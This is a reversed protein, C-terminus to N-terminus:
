IQWALMQDGQLRWSFLPQVTQVVATHSLPMVAKQFPTSM